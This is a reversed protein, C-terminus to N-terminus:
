FVVSALNDIGNIRKGIRFGIDADLITMVDIGCPCEIRLEIRIEENLHLVVMHRAHEGFTGVEQWIVSHHALVKQDVVATHATKERRSLLDYSICHTGTLTQEISFLYCANAIVIMGLAHVDVIINQARSANSKVLHRLFCLQM